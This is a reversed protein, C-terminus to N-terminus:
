KKKLIRGPFEDARSCAYPYLHKIDEHHDHVRPHAAVIVSVTRPISLQSMSFESWTEMDQHGFTLISIRDTPKIEVRLWQDVYASMVINSQGVFGPLEFRVPEKKDQLFFWVILAPYLLRPPAQPLEEVSPSRTVAANPGATSGHPTAPTTLDIFVKTSSPPPTQPASPALVPGSTAHVPGSAAQAPGPVTQVHTDSNSPKKTKKKAAPTSKKPKTSRNSRKRRKPLKIKNEVQFQIIQRRDSPDLAASIFLFTPGPQEPDGPHDEDCVVLHRGVNHDLNKFQLIPGALYHNNDRCRKRCKQLTAQDPAFAFLDVYDFLKSLPDDSDSPPDTPPESM